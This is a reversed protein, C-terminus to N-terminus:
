ILVSNFNCYRTEKRNSVGIVLILVTKLTQLVATMGQVFRQNKALVIESSTVTNNQQGDIFGNILEGSITPVIVCIATYVLGIILALIFRHRNDHMYKWLRKM